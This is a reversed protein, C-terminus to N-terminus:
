TEKYYDITSKLGDRFSTIEKFGLIKKAKRNSLTKRKIAVDEYEKFIIKSKSDTIESITRAIEIVSTKKSSVLDVPEPNPHKEVLSLLGAVLDEIFLFSSEQRGSGWIEIDENNLSKAIFSTIVRGKNKGLTDGPGYTNGPRAVSVKLGYESFYLRAATEAFKKSQIYGDNRDSEYVETSSMLLVRKVKNIRSAELINLVIQSNARFIDASHRAKFVRSGDLAAFNLVIDQGKTIRICSKLDTLDSKVVKTKSKFKRTDKKFGLSVCATIIAGRLVLEAVVNCGIFGAAGTVLVKKGKWFNKM